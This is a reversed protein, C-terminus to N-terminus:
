EKFYKGILEMLEAEGVGGDIAANIKHEPNITLTKPYKDVSFLKALTGDSDMIVTFDLEYQQVFSRIDKLQEYYSSIYIIKLGQDRYKEYFETFVPTDARCFMCDTEWFRLIIPSGKWYSLIIINDNIDKLCFDPAFDGVDAPEIEVPKCGFGTFLALFLFM